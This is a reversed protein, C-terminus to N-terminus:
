DSSPRDNSWPHGKEAVLPPEYMWWGQLVFPAWNYPALDNDDLAIIAAQFAKAMNVLGSGGGNNKEQGAEINLSKYFKETFKAGLLDPINWLTAIASTAGKIMFAPILGMIEDGPHVRLRGGGCAIM